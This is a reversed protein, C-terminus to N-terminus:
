VNQYKKINKQNKNFQTINKFSQKKLDDVKNLVSQHRAAVSLFYTANEHLSLQDTAKIEDLLKRDLNLSKELNAEDIAAELQSILSEMKDLMQM